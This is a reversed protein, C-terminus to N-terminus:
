PAFEDILNDSVVIVYVRAPIYDLNASVCELFPGFGRVIDLTSPYAQLLLSINILSMRFVHKRRGAYINRIDRVFEFLEIGRDVRLCARYLGIFRSKFVPTLSDVLCAYRFFKFPQCLRSLIRALGNRFLAAVKHDPSCFPKIGILRTYYRGVVDAHSRLVLQFRGPLLKLFKFLAVFLGYFIDFKVSFAKLLQRFALLLQM